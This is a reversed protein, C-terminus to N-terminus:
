QFYRDEVKQVHEMAGGGGFESEVYRIAMECGQHVSVVMAGMAMVNAKNMAYIREATYLSECAVCYIGKIKNAVLSVGAGTGCLVIGKECAGDKVKKAVNEVTDVFYFGTDAEEQQGGDFVEHGRETLAKKIAEKLAFASGQGGIAVRM